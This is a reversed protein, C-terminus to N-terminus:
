VHEGGKDTKSFMLTTLDEGFNMISPMAEILLDVAKATYDRVAAPNKTTQILRVLSRIFDHRADSNELGRDTAWTELEYMSRIAPLELVQQLYGQMQPPMREIFFTELGKKVEDFSRVLKETM